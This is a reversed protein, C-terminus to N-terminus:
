YLLYYPRTGHEVVVNFKKIPWVYLGTWVRIEVNSIDSADTSNGPGRFVFEFTQDERTDGSRRVETVIWTFFACGTAAAELAGQFDRRLWVRWAGRFRLPPELVEQSCYLCGHGHETSALGDQTTAM